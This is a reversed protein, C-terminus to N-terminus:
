HRRQSKLTRRGISENRDTQKSSKLEEGKQSVSCSCAVCKGWDESRSCIM